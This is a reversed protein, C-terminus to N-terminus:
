TMTFSVSMGTPLEIEAFAGDPAFIRSARGVAVVTTPKLETHVCWCHVTM